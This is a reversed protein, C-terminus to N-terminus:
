TIKDMTSLYFGHLWSKYRFSPIDNSVSLISTDVTIESVWDFPRACQYWYLLIIYVKTTTKQEEKRKKKKKKRLDIM